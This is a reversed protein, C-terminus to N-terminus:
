AEKVEYGIFSRYVESYERDLDTWEDEHTHVFIMTHYAQVLKADDDLDYGSVGHRLANKIFEEGNDGSMVALTMDEVLQNVLKERLEPNLKSM